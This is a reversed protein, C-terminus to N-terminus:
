LGRCNMEVKKREKGNKKHQYYQTLSLRPLNSKYRVKTNQEKKKVPFGGLKSCSQQQVILSIRPALLSLLTCSSGMGNVNCYEISQCSLQVAVM